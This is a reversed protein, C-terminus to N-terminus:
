PATSGGLGPQILGEGDAVVADGAGVVVRAVVVAVLKLHATM